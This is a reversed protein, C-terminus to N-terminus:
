CRKWAKVITKKKEISILYNDFSTLFHYSFFFVIEDFVLFFVNLREGHDVCVQVNVLVPVWGRWFLTFFNLAFFLLFRNNIITCFGVFLIIITGKKRKKLIQNNNATQRKDRNRERVQIDSNREQESEGGL